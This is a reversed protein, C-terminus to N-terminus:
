ALTESGCCKARQQLRATILDAQALEVGIEIDIRARHRGILVALHEDGIVAGLGIEIEAVILAEGTTGRRSLVVDRGPADILFNEGFLTAAIVEARGNLHDRVDRVGDLFENAVAVFAEIEDKALDPARDAIDLAQRIEFRDALEAVIQGAAM